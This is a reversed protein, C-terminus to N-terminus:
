SLTEHNTETNEFIWKLYKEEGKIIPLAIIEPVEYSHNEIILKEIEPYKNETTKIFLAVEKESEINGKWKYISTIPSTISVCAAAKKKVLLESIKKAKDLDDITTIIFIFRHKSRNM